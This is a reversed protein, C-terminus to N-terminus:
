LRTVAQNPLEGSQPMLDRAPRETVVRAPRPSLGDGITQIQPRLVQGGGAPVAKDPVEVLRFLHQCVLIDMGGTGTDDAQRRAARRTAQTQRSVTVLRPPANPGPRLTLRQLAPGFPGPSFPGPRIAPRFTM